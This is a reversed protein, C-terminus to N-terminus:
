VLAHEGNSPTAKYFHSRFKFPEGWLFHPNLSKFNYLLPRPNRDKLEWTGEETWASRMLM